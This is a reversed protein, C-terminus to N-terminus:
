ARGKRRGGTTSATLVNRSSRAAFGLAGFFRRWPPSCRRRMSAFGGAPVRYDDASRSVLSAGADSRRDDGRRQQGVAADNWPVADSL